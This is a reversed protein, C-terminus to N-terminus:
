IKLMSSFLRKKYEVLRDIDKNSSKVLEYNM